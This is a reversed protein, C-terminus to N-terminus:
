GVCASAPQRGSVERPCSSLTILRDIENQRKVTIINLKETTPLSLQVTGPGREIKVVQDLNIDVKQNNEITVEFWTM